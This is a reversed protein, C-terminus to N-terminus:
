SRPKAVPDEAATAGIEVALRYGRFIAEAEAVSQASGCDIAHKVLRHLSDPEPFSM